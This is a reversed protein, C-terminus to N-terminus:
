NGTRKGDTIELYRRYSGGAIAHLDSAAKAVNRVLGRLLNLVDRTDM